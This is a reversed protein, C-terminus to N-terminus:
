AEATRWRRCSITFVILIIFSIAAVNHLKVALKFGIIEYTSHIELGTFILIFILLAQSWHWFREFLRYIYVKKM